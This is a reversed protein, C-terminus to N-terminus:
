RTISVRAAPNEVCAKRLAELVQVADRGSGWGNPSDFSEVWGAPQAEIWDLMVSLWASAEEATKTNLAEAFHGSAGTAMFAAQWLGAVNGTYNQDLIDVERKVYVSFDYSM